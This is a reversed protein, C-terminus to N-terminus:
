GRGLEFRAFRGVQINEGLKAIAEQIVDGVKKEPDKIYSQELLCVEQYFKGLKGEVIKEVIHDPKGQDKMQERYIEREKELVDPTVQERSVFQPASAAVQMALDHVLQRFEKTRAVFDTECNVEILVGVRDGPHIYAYVIGEKTERGAKKAAKSLGKKRLEEVAREFDGGTATLAQKCDMMGAGTMARLKAVDQATVAM